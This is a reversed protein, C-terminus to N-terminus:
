ANGLTGLSSALPCLRIPEGLRNPWYTLRQPSQSSFARRSGLPAPRLAVPLLRVTNLRGTLTKMSRLSLDESSKRICCDQLTSRLIRLFPSRCSRQFFGYFRRHMAKQMTRKMARAISTHGTLDMACLGRESNTVATQPM